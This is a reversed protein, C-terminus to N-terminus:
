FNLLYECLQKKEPLSEEFVVNGGEEKGSLLGMEELRRKLERATGESGDLIAPGEGTIQRIMHKVFPYHTCGLVIADTKKELYPKLLDSLYQMLSPDELKGEEVFEMLGPCEVPTINAQGDFRELLQRFKEGRVTMPTAMVLVQGGESRMVAPKLAPEIGVVPIDMYIERLKVIAASTATNCAIVVAKAGKKVMTEVNKLTLEQIEEVTKTGYPAHVSDGFYYFDEGPLISVMERLVSIGGVGSDFVAIPLYKKTEGEALTSKKAGNEKVGLEIVCDAVHQEGIELAYEVHISLSDDGEELEIQTASIGLMLNGYPTEYYTLNKKQKEFIMHTSTLGKKTVEMYGPRIKILNATVEETGEMSEDYKIYHMDGRKSYISPIIVEIEEEGDEALSQLGRISVLVDKTM